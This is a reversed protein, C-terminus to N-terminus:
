RVWSSEFLVRWDQVLESMVAVPENPGPPLPLADEDETLPASSLRQLLVAHESVVMRPM